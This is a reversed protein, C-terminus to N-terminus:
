TEFTTLLVTVRGESCTTPGGGISVTDGIWVAGGGIWVTTRGTGFFFPAFDDFGAAAVGSELVSAAGPVRLLFFARCTSAVGGFGGM